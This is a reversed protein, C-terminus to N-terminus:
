YYNYVASEILHKLPDIIFEMIFQLSENKKMYNEIEPNNVILNEDDNCIWLQLSKILNEIREKEIREKEHEELEIKEEDDSESSESKTQEYMKLKNNTTMQIENLRLVSSNKRVGMMYQNSLDLRPLLPSPTEFVNRYADKM